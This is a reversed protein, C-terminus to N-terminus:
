GRLNFNPRKECYEELCTKSKVNVMDVLKHERCYLRITDNIFNYSAEKDCDPNQCKIPM